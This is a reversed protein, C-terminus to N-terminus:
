SLTKVEESKLASRKALSEVHSASPKALRTTFTAQADALETALNLPSASTTEPKTKNAVRAIFRSSIYLGATCVSTYFAEFVGIKFLDPFHIQPFKKPLSPYTKAVWAGMKKGPNSFLVDNLGAKDLAVATPVVIVSTALRGTLVSMWGQKPEQKYVSDDEPETGLKKDIIRAITERRDELLKVFPAMISGDLFSFTVMKAMDAQNESLGAKMAKGTFWTGRKQFWRGVSGGVKDGHSTLYTAVVSISFVVVNNLFPYLFADFLWEGKTRSQKKLENKDDANSM